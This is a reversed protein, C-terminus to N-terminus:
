NTMKQRRTPETVLVPNALKPQKDNKTKSALYM